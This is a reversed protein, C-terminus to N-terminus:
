EVLLSLDFNKVSHTLAGISIFDVGTEAYERINELTIGGTAELEIEGHDTEVCKRIEDPTMNDLLVRDPKAEIAELYQDYNEAEVMVKFKGFRGAYDQCAKIAKATGGIATIHNEKILFADYLGIRHNVGGGAKVSAKDFYRLGPATKRTETIRTTTGDIASVYQHTLTAIGSCRGLCNLATREGALIVWMKGKLVAIIDGSKVRDGDAAKVSYKLQQDIMTFVGEAIAQGAIVGDQRAIIKAKGSQKQPVTALTTIDGRDRLDEKLARKIITKAVRSNKIELPNKPRRTRQSM